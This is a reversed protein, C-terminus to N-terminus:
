SPSRSAATEDPWTISESASLFYRDLTRPADVGSAPRSNMVGGHCRALGIQALADIAHICAVPVIAASLRPLARGRPVLWDAYITSVIPGSREHRPRPVPLRVPGSLGRSGGASYLSAPTKFLPRTAFNASAAPKFSASRFRDDPNSEWGPWWSTRLTSSSLPLRGLSRCRWSYRPNARAPSELAAKAVQRGAIRLNLGVNAGRDVHIM